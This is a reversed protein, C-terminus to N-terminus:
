YLLQYKNLLKSSIKKNNEKSHNKRDRADRRTAVRLTDISTRMML